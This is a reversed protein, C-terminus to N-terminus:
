MVCPPRGLAPAPRFSTTGDYPVGFLGVRCGSPDRRAGMYIAGERDFLADLEISPSTM